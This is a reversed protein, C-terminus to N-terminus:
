MLYSVVGSGGFADIATSPRAAGGAHVPGGDPVPAVRSFVDHLVPLLAYKSGMYRLRPFAAVRAPVAATAEGAAATVLEVTM